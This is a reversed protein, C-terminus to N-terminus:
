DTISYNCFDEPLTGDAVMSAALTDQTAVCKNSPYDLFYGSVGIAGTKGEPPIYYIRKILNHTLIGKADLEYSPVTIKCLAEGSPNNESLANRFDTRISESIEKQSREDQRPFGDGGNIMYSSLVVNLKKDSIRCFTTSQAFHDDKKSITIGDTLNTYSGFICEKGANDTIQAGLICDGTKVSENVYLPEHSDTKLNYQWLEKIYKKGEQNETYSFKIGAIAPFAGTVKSNLGFELLPILESVKYTLRSMKNEYPMTTDLFENDIISFNSTERTVGANLYLVDLDSNDSNDSNKKQKAYRFVTDTIFNSLFSSYKRIENDKNEGMVTYDFLCVQQATVNYLCTWIEQFDTLQGEASMMDLVCDSYSPKTDSHNLYDLYDSYYKKCSSPLTNKYKHDFLDQCKQFTYTQREYPKGFVPMIKFNIMESRYAAATNESNHFSANWDDARRTIKFTTRAASYSRRHLEAFWIPHKNSSGNLSNEDFEFSPINIHTLDDEFSAYKTSVKTNNTPFRSHNAFFSYIEETEKNPDPKCGDPNYVTYSKDLSAPLKDNLESCKPTKDTGPIMGTLFPSYTAEGFVILINDYIEQHLKKRLEAAQESQPRPDDKDLMDETVILHSRCPYDHTYDTPHAKIYELFDEDLSFLGNFFEQVSTHDTFVHSLIIFARANKNYAEELAQIVSCYNTISITGFHGRSIIEMASDDLASVVAVNLDEGHGDKPPVQFIAYPSTGELNNPLNYFNSIIFPFNAAQILNQIEPLNIDFTHNGFTDVSMGLQNLMQITPYDGFASSLPQSVGFNDGSGIILAKENSGNQSQAKIFDWIDSIEQVGSRFTECSYKGSMTESKGLYTCEYHISALKESSKSPVAGYPYLHLKNDEKNIIAIDNIIAGTQTDTITLEGDKEEVNVNLRITEKQPIIRGAWEALMFVDLYYEEGDTAAFKNQRTTEEPGQCACLCAAACLAASIM